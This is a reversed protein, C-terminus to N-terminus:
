KQYQFPLISSSVDVEHVQVSVNRGRASVQALEGVKTSIKKGESDNFTVRLEEIKEPNFRGGSRLQALEHTLHEISKLIKSELGSFDFAEDVATARAATEIPTSDSKAQGRNAKGTKKATPSPPPSSAYSSHQCNHNYTSQLSSKDRATPTNTHCLAVLTYLFLYWQPCTRPALRAGLAISLRKVAFKSKSAM